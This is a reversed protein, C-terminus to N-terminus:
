DGRIFSDLDCIELCEDTSDPVIKEIRRCSVAWGRRSDCEGMFDHGNVDNDWVVDVCNCKSKHLVTGTYGELIKNDIERVCVVRDGVEYPITLM